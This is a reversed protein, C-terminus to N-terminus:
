CKCNSAPSGTTLQAVDNSVYASVTTDSLSVTNTKSLNNCAYQTQSLSQHHNDNKCYWCPKSRHCNRTLCGSGLCKYCRDHLQAKRAEMTIYRPCFNFYHESKAGCLACKPPPKIWKREERVYRAGYTVCDTDTSYLAGIIARVPFM